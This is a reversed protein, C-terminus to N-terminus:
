GACVASRGSRAREASSTVAALAAEDSIRLAAPSSAGASPPSTSIVPEIPVSNATQAAHKAAATPSAAVTRLVRLDPGRRRRPPGQALQQGAEPGRALVPVDGDHEADKADVADAPAREAHQEDDHRELQEV